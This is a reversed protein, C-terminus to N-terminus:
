SFLDYDIEEIKIIIISRSLISLRLHSEKKFAFSLTSNGLHRLKKRPTRSANANANEDM